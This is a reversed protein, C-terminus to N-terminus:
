LVIVADTTLTEFPAIDTVIGWTRANPASITQDSEVFSEIRQRPLELFSGLVDQLRKDFGELEEVVTKLHKATLRGPGFDYATGHFSFAGNLVSLREKGALFVLNAASRIAGINHTTIHFPMGRLLEYLVFAQDMDGGPSDMAILVRPALYQDRGEVIIKTLERATTRGIEGAVIVVLRREPM